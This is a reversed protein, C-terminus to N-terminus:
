RLLKMRIPSGTAILTKPLPLTLSTASSMATMTGIYLTIETTMRSDNRPWLGSMACIRFFTAVFGIMRPATAPMMATTSCIVSGRGTSIATSHIASTVVGIASMRSPAEKSIVVTFPCFRLRIKQMRIRRTTTGASPSDSAASSPKRPTCNTPSMAISAVGMATEEYVIASLMSLSPSSAPLQTM